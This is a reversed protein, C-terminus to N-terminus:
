EKYFGCSPQDIAIMAIKSAYRAAHPTSRSRRKIALDRESVSLFTSIAQFDDGDIMAADEDQLKKKV